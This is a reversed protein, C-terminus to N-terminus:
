PPPQPMESTRVPVGPRSHRWAIQGSNARSGLLSRAHRAHRFRDPTSLFLRSSAPLKPDRAIGIILAVFVILLVVGALFTTGLFRRWRRGGPDYFVQPWPHKRQTRM